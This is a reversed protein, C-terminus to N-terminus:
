NKQTNAENWAFLPRLVTGEIKLITCLSSDTLYQIQKVDLRNAKFVRLTSRLLTDKTKSKEM